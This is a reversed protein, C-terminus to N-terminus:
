KLLDAIFFITIRLAPGTRRVVAAQWVYGVAQDLCLALGGDRLVSGSPPV